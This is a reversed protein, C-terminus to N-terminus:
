KGFVVGAYSVVAEKDGTVSSSDTYDVLIGKSANGLKAYYCATSGAGVGCVSIDEQEAIEIAKNWELKTWKDLIKQDDIKAKEQTVYHSMDSSALVLIDNKLSITHLLKGIRQATEVDQYGMIIPVIQFNTEFSALLSLIVEISHEALHAGYDAEIYPDKEIISHAIPENVQIWGFPTEWQGTDWISVPRGFGTHNVGILVVTSPISLLSITKLATTGSFVFGAHPLIASSIMNLSLNDPVWNSLVKKKWSLIQKSNGPYYMTPGAFTMKRDM